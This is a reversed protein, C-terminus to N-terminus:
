RRGRRARLYDAVVYQGLRDLDPSFVRGGCRRALSDLFRALGPDDGLRFINIGAGGRALADVEAVTARLTASSTPWQFVPQGRDDIHATPEGDTIVMVVPEAEPHRRVHRGALMLAHALNTGQVWEPELEALELVGMRRATINFGIIQLADGRFRTGVLHALALATQKMPGWRDWEIMSYSLDVCLAVAARTRRETEVVVFDEVSLRLGDGARAQMAARRLVANGVTRAADLPQETGYEWPLFAGTREQAGGVRRDDHQGARRAELDAFIRRLATEGLRRLAKPTLNLAGGPADRRTWGQRELEAELERLLALDRVAEAGLQRELAEIDVDDLAAGAYQQGLQSDLSELDAMESVVGAAQGYGLPEDGDMQVPRGSMMGPRLTNLTDRLQHLPGDLGAQAMSQQILEELEQRQQPTLSRMMREAAAQQRALQDILQDVDAPRDPFFDGHKDMFRAFQEPTDQGRAHDALLENLDNLMDRLAGMTQPNADRLSKRLGAFQHDLVDRRLRGTIDQYIQRAEPSHWDYDALERVAAATTDPLGALRMEDLRAQDTAEGALTDRETALAQDLAARAQDLAGGLRGAQRLQERRRRVQERLDNLGPQRGPGHRLLERLADPLSRGALVSRGLEDVAARVDFPPALPDPGERWTGYRYRGHNRGDHRDPGDPPHSRPM